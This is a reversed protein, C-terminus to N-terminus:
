VQFRPSPTSSYWSCSTVRAPLRPYTTVPVVVVAEVRSASSALSSTLMRSVNRGLYRARGHAQSPGRQTEWNMWRGRIGPRDALIARQAHTDGDDDCGGEIQRREHVTEVRLTDVHDGPDRCELILM